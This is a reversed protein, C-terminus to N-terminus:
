GAGLRWARWLLVRLARVAEDVLRRHAADDAVARDLLSSALALRTDVSREALGRQKDAPAIPLHALVLDALQSRDAVALLRRLAPLSLEPFADPGEARLQERLRRDRPSAGGPAGDAPADELPRVRARIHRGDRRVELLEVRALGVVRCRVQADGLLDAVAALTAVRHFPEDDRAPTRRLAVAVLGRADGAARAASVADDTSLAFTASEAPFLVTGRVGLVPVDPPVGALDIFAM